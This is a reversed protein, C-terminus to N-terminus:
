LGRSLPGIRQAQEGEDYRHNIKQQHQARNNEAPRATQPPFNMCPQANGEDGSGDTDTQAEQQHRRRYGGFSMMAARIFHCMKYPRVAIRGLIGGIMYKGVLVTNQQDNANFLIM